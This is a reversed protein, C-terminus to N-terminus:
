FNECFCALSNHPHDGLEGATGLEVTREPRHDFPRDQLRVWLHFLDDQDVIEVEALLALDPGVRDAVSPRGAWSGAPLVFELPLVARIAVVVGIQQVVVAVRVHRGAGVRIQSGDQAVGGAPGAHVHDLVAGVVRVQVRGVAPFQVDGDEVRVALIDAVEHAGGSGGTLIDVDGAFEGEGQEDRGLGGVQDKVVPRSGPRTGVLRISMLTRKVLPLARLTLPYAIKLILAQTHFPIPLISEIADPSNGTGRLRFHQTHIYNPAPFIQM